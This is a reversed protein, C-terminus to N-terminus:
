YIEFDEEEISACPTTSPYSKPEFHNYEKRGEDHIKLNDYQSIWGEDEEFM